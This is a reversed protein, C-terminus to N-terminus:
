KIISPVLFALIVIVALCIATLIILRRIDGRVYHMEEEISMTSAAGLRSRTTSRQMAASRRQM